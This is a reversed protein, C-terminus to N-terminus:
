SFAADLMVLIAALNELMKEHGALEDGQMEGMAILHRTYTKNVAYVIDMVQAETATFTVTKTTMTIAEVTMKDPAAMYSDVANQLAKLEDKM